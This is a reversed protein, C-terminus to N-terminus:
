LYWGKWLGDAGTSTDPMYNSPYDTYDTICNDCKEEDYKTYEHRYICICCYGAGRGNGM